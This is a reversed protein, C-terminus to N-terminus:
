LRCVRVRQREQEDGDRQPATHQFGEAEFTFATQARERRTTVKM